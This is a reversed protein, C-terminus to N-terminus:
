FLKKLEKVALEVEGQTTFRGFSFRVSGHLHEEPLNMARLVHSAEITASNCASGSSFALKKNRLIIEEFDYGLFAVNSTNPLRQSSECNIRIKDTVNILQSEFYDRLQRIRDQETTMQEKLLAVAKSLGVIGPTNLTGSRLGRQQGGGTIQPVINSLLANDSLYMGGIGKPGYIKHGSFTFIDVPTNGLDIKIKGLAQTADSMFLVGHDRAIESIKKMDQIVGTENNAWLISILFTEPKISQQLENIDILGNKDVSLYTVEIGDKELVQCTDLVAKHEARTTIIHNGQIRNSATLGRLALNISETAGSTFLIDGENANIFNKIIKKSEIIVKKAITGFQHQGSSPNGFKDTFYPIMADLVKQDTPTTANYDFYIPFKM